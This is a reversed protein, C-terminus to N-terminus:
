HLTPDWPPTENHNCYHEVGNQYYVHEGLERYAKESLGSFYPCGVGQIKRGQLSALSLIASGSDLDSLLRADFVDMLRHDEGLNDCIINLLCDNAGIAAKLQGTTLCPGYLPIQKEKMVAFNQKYGHDNVAVMQPVINNEFNFRAGLNLSSSLGKVVLARLSFMLKSGAARFHFKETMGLISLQTHDASQGKVATRYVKLKLLEALEASMAAHDLLALSPFVCKGQTKGCLIPLYMDSFQEKREAEALHNLSRTVQTWASHNGVLALLIGESDLSASGTRFEGESGTQFQGQTGSGTIKNSM